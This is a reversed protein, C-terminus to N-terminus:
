RSKSKTELKGKTLTKFIFGIFVIEQRFELFRFREFSSLRSYLVSSSVGKRPELKLFNLDM